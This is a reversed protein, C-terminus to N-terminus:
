YRLGAARFLKALLWAPGVLLFQVDRLFSPRRTEIKHGLFQLIWALVFFFLAVQWLPLEGWQRYAASVGLCVLSLAAMGAALPVSLTLVYLVPVLAAVAGWDMGPVVRWSAPYPLSSFLALISWYIVPVAVWHILQNVVNRHSEGYIGFLRDVRRGRLDQDNPVAESM